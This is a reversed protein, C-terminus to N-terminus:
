GGLILSYKNYKVRIDWKQSYFITREYESHIDSKASLMGFLYISLAITYSGILLPDEVYSGILLLVELEEEAMEVRELAEYYKM